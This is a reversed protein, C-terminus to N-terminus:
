QAGKEPHQGLIGEAPYGLLFDKVAMRRKGEPQVERLVLVGDGTQVRIADKAASLITGPAAEMKKQPEADADWIKLIKGRYYTYASPWSNLGRVLREIRAAPMTWSIEGQRKNLMKAYCSRADDQKTRTITGNEIEDLAKLLLPGGMAALREYLHEATEKTGIKTREQLLIDGTDLGKDMQMITIGTEEDGEIVAWQIPAAGRWRPLLSGHINLCGYRPLDLIEQSLIQGYAAVVIADPHQERLVEVAAAEKVKAPQFVPIGLEKAKAKVDSEELAKGRGKQRDPQTVVLTVEHRSAALASLAPVAFDPTGMFIIRM